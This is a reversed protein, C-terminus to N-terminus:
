FIGVHLRAVKSPIMQLVGLSSSESRVLSLRAVSCLCSISRTHYSTCLGTEMTSTNRFYLPDPEACGGPPRNLMVPTYLQVHQSVQEMGNEADHQGFARLIETRTLPAGNCTM